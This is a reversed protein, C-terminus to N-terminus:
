LLFFDFNYNTNNKIKYKNKVIKVTKDVINNLIDAYLKQLHNITIIKNLINNIKNKIFKISRGDNYICIFKDINNVFLKKTKNIDIKNDIDYFKYRQIGLKDEIWFLSNIQNIIKNDKMIENIDKNNISIIKKEFKDQPLDLIKKNIYNIFKKDDSIIEIYNEESDKVYKM